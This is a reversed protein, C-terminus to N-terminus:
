FLNLDRNNWNLEGSLLICPKSKVEKVKMSTYGYKECVLEKAHKKSEAIVIVYNPTCMNRNVRYVKM